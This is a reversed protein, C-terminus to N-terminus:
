IDLLIHDAIHGITKRSVSHYTWYSNEYQKERTQKNINVSHSELLENFHKTRMAEDTYNLYLFTVIPM